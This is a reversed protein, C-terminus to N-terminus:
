DCNSHSIFVQATGQEYWGDDLCAEADAETAGMTDKAVTKFLAEAEKNGEEDESFSTIKSVSDDKYEIINVTDVKM